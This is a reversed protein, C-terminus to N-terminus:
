LEQTPMQRADRVNLYRRSMYFIKLSPQSKYLAHQLSFMPTSSHLSASIKVQPAGGHALEHALLGGLLWTWYFLSGDVTSYSVTYSICQM